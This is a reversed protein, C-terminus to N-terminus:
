RGVIANSEGMAQLDEMLEWMSPYNVTIEDIDVTLLTFGARGLLNSVDRTDLVDRTLLLMKQDCPLTGTM